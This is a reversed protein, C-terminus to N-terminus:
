GGSVPPLLALEDGDNLKSDIPAYAGNVAFATQDILSALTQHRRVVADCADRANSDAPLDLDFASVGAQERLVAFLRVHITM